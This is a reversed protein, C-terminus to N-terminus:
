KVNTTLVQTELRFVCGIRVIIVHRIRLEVQLDDKDLKYCSSSFSYSKLNTVSMENTECHFM